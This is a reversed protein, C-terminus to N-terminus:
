KNNVNLISNHEINSIYTLNNELFNINKSSNNTFIALLIEYHYSM